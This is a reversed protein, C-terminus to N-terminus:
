DSARRRHMAVRRSREADLQRQLREMKAPDERLQEIAAEVHPMNELQQFAASERSDPVSFM